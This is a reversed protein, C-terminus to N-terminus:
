TIVVEGKNLLLLSSGWFGWEDAELCLRGGVFFM